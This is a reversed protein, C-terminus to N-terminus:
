QHVQNLNTSWSREHCPPRKKMNCRRMIDPLSRRNHVFYMEYVPVFRGRPRDTFPYGPTAHALYIGIRRLSAAFADTARTRASDRHPGMRATRSASTSDLIPALVSAGLAAGNGM